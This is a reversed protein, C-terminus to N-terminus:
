SPDGTRARGRWGLWHWELVMNDYRGSPRRDFNESGDKRMEAEFSERERLTAALDLPQISLPRALTAVQALENYQDETIAEAVALLDEWQWEEDTVVQQMAVTMRLPVLAFGKPPENKASSAVARAPILGVKGRFSMVRVYGDAPEATSETPVLMAVAEACRRPSNSCDLYGIAQFASERTVTPEAYNAKAVLAGGVPEAPQTVPLRALLEECTDHVLREVQASQDKDDYALRSVGADRILVDVVADPIRKINGAGNHYTTM